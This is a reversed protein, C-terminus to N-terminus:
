TVQQHASTHLITLLHCEDETSRHGSTPGPVLYVPTYLPGDYFVRPPSYCSLLFDVSKPIDAPNRTNGLPKVGVPNLQSLGLDLPCSNAAM